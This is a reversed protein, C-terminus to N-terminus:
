PPCYFPYSWHAKALTNVFIALVPLIKM